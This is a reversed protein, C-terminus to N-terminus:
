LKSMKGPSIGSHLVTPDAIYMERQNGIEVLGYRFSITYQQRVANGQAPKEQDVFITHDPMLQNIVQRKPATDILSDPNKLSTKVPSWLLYSGTRIVRRCLNLGWDSNFPKVSRLAAYPIKMEAVWFGERKSASASWWGDWDEDPYREESRVGSANVSFRYVSEGKGSPDLFVEVSEDPVLNDDHKKASTLIFEAAPDLCVFAVYLNLDNHFIRVETKLSESVEGVYASFGKVVHAKGWVEENLVGDVNISESSFVAPIEYSADEAQVDDAASFALIALIVTMSGILRGFSNKM